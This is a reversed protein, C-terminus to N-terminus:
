EVYRRMQKRGGWPRAKEGRSEGTEGGKKKFHGDGGCARFNGFEVTHGIKRIASASGVHDVQKEEWAVGQV